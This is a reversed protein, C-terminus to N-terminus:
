KLKISSLAVLGVLTFLMYSFAYYFTQASGEKCVSAAPIACYIDQVMIQSEVWNRDEHCSLHDVTKFTM